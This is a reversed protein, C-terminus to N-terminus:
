SSNLTAALVVAIRAAMTRRILPVYPITVLSRFRERLVAVDLRVGGTCQRAAIQIKM